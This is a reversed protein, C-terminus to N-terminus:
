REELGRSALLTERFFFVLACILCAVTAIWLVTIATGLKAEVYTSAFLLAIVLSIIVAAATSFMIARRALKQRARLWALEPTAPTGSGRGLQDDLREIRGAVWILRAMMVNMISGIGVLLFVPALSLQMAQLVAPTSATREILDGAVDIPLLLDLLM